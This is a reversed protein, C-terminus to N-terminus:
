VLDSFSPRILRRFNTLPRTKKIVGERHAFSISSPGLGFGNGEITTLVNPHFNSNINIDIYPHESIILVIHTGHGKEGVLGIDGPRPDFTIIDQISECKSYKRFKGDYITTEVGAYKKVAEKDQGYRDLRYTSAFDKTRIDLKLGAKAWCAAVFAGCWAFDGDGKYEDEWTWNLGNTTRIISDIFDRSINARESKDKSSPDIIDMEWFKQAAEVAKIGAQKLTDEMVLEENIEFPVVFSEGIKTTNKYRNRIDEDSENDDLIKVYKSNLFQM